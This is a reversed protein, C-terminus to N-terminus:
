KVTADLLLVHYILVDDSFHARRMMFWPQFIPKEGPAIKEAFTSEAEAHDAECVQERRFYQVCRKRGATRNPIRWQRRPRGMKRGFCFSDNVNEGIAAWRVNIGKVWFWLQRPQM